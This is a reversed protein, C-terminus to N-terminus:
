PLSSNGKKNQEGIWRKYHFEKRKKQRHDTKAHARTLTVLPVRIRLLFRFRRIGNVEENMSFMSVVALVSLMVRIVALRMVSFFTVVGLGFSSRGSAFLQM